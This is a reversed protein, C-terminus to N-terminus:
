MQWQKIVEGLTDPHSQRLHVIKTNSPLPKIRRGKKRALNFNNYDRYDFFKVRTGDVDKVRGLLKGKSVHSFVLDNLFIQDGLQRPDVSRLKEDFRKIDEIWTKLFKKARENNKIFLVGANIYTRKEGGKYTVGIDYDDTEIEDINGVLFADADLYVVTEDTKELADLMMFPKLMCVAARHHVDLCELFGPCERGYGLGGMDYVVTEYGFKESQSLSFELRDRFAYDAQSLIIV